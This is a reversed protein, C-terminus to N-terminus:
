SSRQRPQWPLPYAPELVASRIGLAIVLDAQSFATLIGMLGGDWLSLPHDDPLTGRGTSILAFPIGTVDVFKKL